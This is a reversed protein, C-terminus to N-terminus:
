VDAAAWEEGVSLKRGVSDLLVWDGWGDSAVIMLDGEYTFFVREPSFYDDETLRHKSM